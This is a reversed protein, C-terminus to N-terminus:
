IPDYMERAENRDLSCNAVLCVAGLTASIVNVTNMGADGLMHCALAGVLVGGSCYTLVNRM